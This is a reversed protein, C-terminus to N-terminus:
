SEYVSNTHCFAVNVKIEKGEINIDIATGIELNKTTHLKTKLYVVGRTPSVSGLVPVDGPNRGVVLNVFFWICSCAINQYSSTSEYIKHL